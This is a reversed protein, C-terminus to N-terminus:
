RKATEPRAAPFNLMTFTGTMVLRRDRSNLMRVDALSVRNGMKVVEGEAIIEGGPVGALFNVKFEMTVLDTGEPLITLAAFTAATDALSSLVGGHALGQYQQHRKEIKLSLSATGPGLKKVKLGLWNPYPVTAFRSLLM